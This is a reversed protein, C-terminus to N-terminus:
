VGDDTVEDILDTPDMNLEDAWHQIAPNDPEKPVDALVERAESLKDARATEKEEKKARLAELEQQEEKLEAEIGAKEDKILAVRKEKQEIRRELASVREGGFERWLAAQVVEKNNREDADVLRKLESPIEAVLREEDSESM